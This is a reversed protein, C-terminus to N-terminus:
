VQPWELSHLTADRQGMTAARGTRHADSGCPVGRGCRVGPEWCSVNGLRIGLDVPKTGIVRLHDQPLVGYDPSDPAVLSRKHRQLRAKEFAEHLKIKFDDLKQKFYDELREDQTSADFAYAITFILLPLTWKLAQM